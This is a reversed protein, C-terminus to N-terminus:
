NKRLLSLLLDQTSLQQSIPDLPQQGQLRHALAQLQLQNQQYRLQQDLQLQNIANHQQRLNMLMISNSQQEHLQRLLAENHLQQLTVDNSVMGINALQVPPPNPLGPLGVPRALSQLDQSADFVQQSSVQTTDPSVTDELRNPLAGDLAARGIRTSRIISENYDEMAKRYRKNDERAIEEYKSRDKLAKWKSAIADSM